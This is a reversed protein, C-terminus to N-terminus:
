RIVKTVKQSGDDYTTVVINVGEFPNNSQMGATNIYKVGVVQKNTAVGEVGTMTYDVTITVSAKVNPNQVLTATITVSSTEGAVPAKAGGETLEVATVLGNEDVTAVTEDSSSWTVSPDAGEPEVAVVELQLTEGGRLVINEEDTHNLTISTAVIKKVLLDLRAPVTTQNDETPISFVGLKNGTAVLNGAYDFNMQYVATGLDTSSKFSYKPTLIPTFGDMELDFFQFYGSGDNIVLVSNDGNVAFGARDSGNLYDSFGNKGSNFTVNGEPDVFMLSPVGSANNGASRYQSVWCSGDPYGWVNGNTNLQWPGVAYNASPAQNWYTAITGDENGINYVSVNNGVGSIFLDENYVFLKTEAGKGAVFVGPSSGAVAEGAANTLLGDSSRNLFSGDENAFFPYFIEEEASPDFVFVGSSGDAWDPVYVKGESDIGMRYNSGFTKETRAKIVQDNVREYEPSYIWMGNGANGSGVRNGVYIRGFFPSEPSRDVTNFVQGSYTVDPTNILAITPINNGVLNVAWNMEGGYGPLDDQTLTVTNVGEVVNPVEVRGVENGEADIFVIYAENADSNATFTFTYSDDDNKESNLGYAYIGKVVPQDVGETTFFNVGNAGVLTADIDEGNVIATAIHETLGNLVPDHHTAKRPMGSVEVIDTNVTKILKAKDVGGTIDLIKIGKVTGDEAYPTVLLSHGAYKFCQFGVGTAGFEDSLTKIETPNGTIAVPTVFESITGMGGLIVKDDGNPSVVIHLEEGYATQKGVFGGNYLNDHFVSTQEGDLMNIHVLRINCTSGTTMATILVECEGTSAGNVLIGHGVNANYYNGSNKTSTFLSPAEDFDNWIYVRATGRTYGDAVNDAGYQNETLSVGVLKNDATRNIANLPSFFGPSDETYIGETSLEKVLEKTSTKILYLHPVKGENTLVITSDGIQVADKITGAFNFSQNSQEFVYESAVKLYDPQEPEPYNEYVVTPPVYDVNELFLLPYTTANATVTVPEKYEDFLPKYGDLTADLTYEGPELDGFFFVGNYNNDVTYSAVENGNKLLKVTAGNLPLWQDNTGASYQFLSNVIKEHLDKVTGMIYGTSEPTLNFYDCVGRAIRVGEQHCYDMNLARHRAPQYTHFYGEVLFGPVGHKLVGYYGGYYNGNSRESVSGSGQFSIDGRLNKQTPSYYSQPDIESMYHYGWNVDCMDWSGEVANGTYTVTVEHQDEDEGFTGTLSGTVGNDYGRYLYLPYNTNNGDVHANSHVSIFMDFNGLEVEECIESLPRNYLEADAAGAVYPYPGNKVRSYVINDSQIGMKELTEGLQLVKWLNTNSEYFGCTDPMGTEPLNPYPITAMPRDNPGWSGHGPNLYIRLEDATKAQMTGAALIAAVALLLIKKM